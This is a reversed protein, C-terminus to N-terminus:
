KNEENEYYFLVYYEGRLIIQEVKVNRSNVFKCIENAHNFTKYCLNNKM